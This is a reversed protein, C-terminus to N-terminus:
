VQHGGLLQGGQGRQAPVHCVAERQERPGDGSWCHGCVVALYSFTGDCTPVTNVLIIM